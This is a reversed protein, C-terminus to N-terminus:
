FSSSYFIFKADVCAIERHRSNKAWCHKKRQTHTFKIQQSIQTFICIWSKIKEYTACAFKM